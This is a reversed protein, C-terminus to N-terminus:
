LRNVGRDARGDRFIMSSFFYFRTNLSNFGRLRALLGVVLFSLSTLVNLFNPIGWVTRLDAFQHYAPDQPIPPIFLLPLFSGFALFGVVMEHRYRLM